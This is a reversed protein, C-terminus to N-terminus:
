ELPLDRVRGCLGIVPAGVPKIGLKACLFCHRPSPLGKTMIDALQQETPVYIPRVVGTAVKERVYHHRIDIHKSRRDTLPNKALHIAGQNDCLLDFSTISIGIEQALSLLFMGAGTADSYAM